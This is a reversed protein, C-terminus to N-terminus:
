ISGGIKVPKFIGCREIEAKVQEVSDVIAACGGDARIMEIREVQKPRIRAKASGKRKPRKVEFWFPTIGDQHYYGSLDPNGAESVGMWCGCRYCKPVREINRFVRAGTAELYARIQKLVDEETLVPEFIGRESLAVKKSRV